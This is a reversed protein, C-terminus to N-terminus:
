DPTAPGAVIIRRRAPGAPDTAWEDVPGSGPATSATLPNERVTRMRTHVLPGDGGQRRLQEVGDELARQVLEIQADVLGLLHRALPEPLGPSGAVARISALGRRGQVLARAWEFEDGAAAMAALLGDAWLKLRQDLAGTLMAVFRAWGDAPLAAEVLKPLGGPAASQETRWRRLFTVWTQLDDGHSNM